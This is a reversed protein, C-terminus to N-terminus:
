WQMTANHIPFHRVNDSSPRVGAEESNRDKPPLPSTRFCPVDKILTVLSDLLDAPADRLRPTARSTRNGAGAAHCLRGIRRFRLEQGGALGLGFNEVALGAGSRSLFALPFPKDPPFRVFSRFAGHVQKRTRRHLSRFMTNKAAIADHRNLPKRPDPSIGLRSAMRGSCHLKVAFCAFNAFFSGRNSASVLSFESM